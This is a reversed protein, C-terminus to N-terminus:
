MNEFDLHMNDTKICDDDEVNDDDGGFDRDVDRNAM